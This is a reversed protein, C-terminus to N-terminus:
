ERQGGEPILERNWRAIEALGATDCTDRPSGRLRPIRVRDASASRIEANKRVGPVRAPVPGAGVCCPSNATPAGGTAARQLPDAGITKARRQAVEGVWEEGALRPTEGM